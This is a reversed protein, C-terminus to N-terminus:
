AALLSTVALDVLAELDAHTVPRQHVFSRVFLPGELVALAHEMDIGPRLEGRAMAHAVVARLPDGRQETMEDRIRGLEPDRVSAGLLELLLRRLDPDNALHLRAEFVTLVDARLSGSDPVEMPEIMSDLSAVLLEHVNAFHRYITTKAVGSRRAVADVTFGEIGDTLLVMRAAQLTKDRAELSLTRAM